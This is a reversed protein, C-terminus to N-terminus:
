KKWGAYIVTNAIVKDTAFNWVKTCKIDKYWNVFKYGKRTPTTPKALKTNAIVKLAKVSTGGQSNFSVTFTKVVPTVVPMAGTISKVYITHNLGSVKDTDFNWHKTCKRDSYMDNANYGYTSTVLGGITYNKVEKLMKDSFGDPAVIDLSGNWAKADLDIVNTGLDHSVSWEVMPIDFYTQSCQAQKSYEGDFYNKSDWTTDVFVWRNDVYVENWVHDGVDGLSNTVGGITKAPFGAAQLLNETVGAYSVCLGRKGVGSGPFLELKGYEDEVFTTTADSYDYYMNNSVWDHIAKVKSYDDTLGATIINAQKIYAAESAWTGSKYWDLAYADTRENATMKLNDAYYVSAKFSASGDKIEIRFNYKNPYKKSGKNVYGVRLMYSGDSLGALNITAGDGQGRNYTVNRVVNSNNYIVELSMSDYTRDTPENSFVLSNSQLEVTFNARDDLSINTATDAAYAVTSFLSVAVFVMITILMKRM